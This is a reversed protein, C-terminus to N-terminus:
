VYFREFRLRAQNAHVSPIRSLFFGYSAWQQSKSSLNRSANILYGRKDRSSIHTKTSLLGEGLWEDKQGDM